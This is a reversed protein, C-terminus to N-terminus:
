CVYLVCELMGVLVCVACSRVCGSVGLGSGRVDIVLGRIALVQYAGLASGRVGFAWM